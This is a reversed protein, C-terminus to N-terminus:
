RPLLALALAALREIQALADAYAQRQTQAREARLRRSRRARCREGCTLRHAGVHAPCESCSM